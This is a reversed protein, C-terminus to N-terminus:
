RASRSSARSAARRRWRWRRWRSSSRERCRFSPSPTALSAAADLEELASALLRSTLEGNFKAVVVAVSKRGGVPAGELVQVGDPVDLEGAAHEQPARLKPLELEDDDELLEEAQETVRRGGPLPPRLHHLRHGLKDRKAALYRENEPNPPVEIPLQETM